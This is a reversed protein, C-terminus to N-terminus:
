IGDAVRQQDYIAHLLAFQALQVFGVRWVPTYFNMDGLKRLDNNADFGSFTVVGMGTSRAYEAARIINKSRGSASMAVLLCPVRARTGLLELQKVFMEEVGYDNAHSSLTVGDVLAISRMNALSWDVAMHAATAASGGNGIFITQGGADGSISRAVVRVADVAKDLAMPEGGHMSAQTTRLAIEANNIWTTLTSM